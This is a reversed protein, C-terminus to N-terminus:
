VGVKTHTYLEILEGNEFTRYIGYKVGNYVLETEGEYDATRMYFSFSPTLGVQKAQFFEGQTTSRKDCFVQRETETEIEQGIDDKTYEIKVLSM